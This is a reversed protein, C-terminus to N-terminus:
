YIDGTYETRTTTAPERDIRAFDYDEETDDYSTEEQDDDEEGDDPEGSFPDYNKALIFELGAAYAERTGILQLFTRFKLNASWDSFEAKGQLLNDRVEEFTKTDGFVDLHQNITLSKRGERLKKLKESDYLAENVVRNITKDINEFRAVAKKKPV